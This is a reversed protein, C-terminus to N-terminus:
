SSLQKLQMEVHRRSTRIHRRMLMEAMEGDGDAIADAIFRHENFGAKVRPTGMSFQYRYMSVKPYLEDCLLKILNSNKSGHIVQYHFDLDGSRYHEQNSNDAQQCSTEVLQQLAMVETEDMNRAALRCALGELSERIEYLEWLEDVSLTAVRAGVNIRRTVLRSAELRSIAERVTSRSVQHSRSLEPESIKSGSAIEGTIIQAMLAAYVQDVASQPSDSWNALSM